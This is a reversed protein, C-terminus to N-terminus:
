HLRGGPSSDAASTTVSMGLAEYIGVFNRRIRADLATVAEDLVEIRRALDANLMVFQGDFIRIREIVDDTDTQIYMPGRARKM